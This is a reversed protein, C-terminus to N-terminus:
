TPPRTPSEWEVPPDGPTWIYGMDKGRFEAAEVGQLGTGDLPIAFRIGNEWDLVLGYDLLEDVDWLIRGIQGVLKDAYGEDGPLRGSHNLYVWPMVYLNLPSSDFNLQVYDQVFTVSALPQPGVLECLPHELLRTEPQELETLEIDEGFSATVFEDRQEPTDFARGGALPTCLMHWTTITQSREGDSSKWTTDRTVLEVQYLRGGWHGSGRATITERREM